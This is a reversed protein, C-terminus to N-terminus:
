EPWFAADVERMAKQTDIHELLKDWKRKKSLAMLDGVTMTKGTRLSIVLDTGTKINEKQVVQKPLIIAL